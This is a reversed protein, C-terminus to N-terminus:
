DRPRRRAPKGKKDGRYRARTVEGPTPKKKKFYKERIQLRRLALYAQRDGIRRLADEARPRLFPNLLAHVLKPVAATVRAEGLVEVATQRVSLDGYDILAVLRETVRPEAAFRGLATVAALQVEVDMDGLAGLLPDVVRPDDISCLATAGYCRVSPWRNKLLGILAGVEGVEPYRALHRRAADAPRGGCEDIVRILPVVGRPDNAEGLGLGAARLTARDQTDALRAFAEVRAGPSLRQIADLAAKRLRAFPSQAAAVLAAVLHPEPLGTAAGVVAAVACFGEVEPATPRPEATIAQLLGACAPVLDPAVAGRRALTLLARRGEAAAARPGTAIGHLLATTEPTATGTVVDLAAARVAADPDDLLPAVRAVAEPGVRTGLQHVAAARVEPEADGLGAEFAPREAAGGRAGLAVLARRRVSALPHGLLGRFLAAPAATAGELAELAAAAVDPDSGSSAAWALPEFAESGGLAGLRRAAACALPTPGARLRALAEALTYLAFLQDLRAPPLGLAREPAERLIRRVARVAYDRIAGNEDRCAPLLLGLVEPDPRRALAQVVRDRWFPDEASLGRAILRAGNAGAMGAVVRLVDESVGADPRGILDGLADLGAGDGLAALAEVAARRLHIPERASLFEVLAPVDGALKLEAVRSEGDAMPEACM